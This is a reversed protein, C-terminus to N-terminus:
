FFKVIDNSGSVSEFGGASFRIDKVLSSFIFSLGEQQGSRTLFPRNILFGNVYVLNEDYSGGRVNYSSTLENNSSAATTYILTREVGGTTTKQIDLAPLKLLGGVNIEKRVTVTKEEQIPLKVSGLNYVLEKEKLVIIRYITLSDISFSLRVKTNSESRIEFDGNLDSITSDTTNRIIVNSLAIGKKSVCKGRIVGPQSFLPTVQLIFLIGILHRM